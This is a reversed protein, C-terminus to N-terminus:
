LELDELLFCETPAIALESSEVVENSVEVVAM